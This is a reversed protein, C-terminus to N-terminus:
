SRVTRNVLEELILALFLQEEKDNLEKALFEFARYQLGKEGESQNKTLSGVERSGITVPLMKEGGKDLSAIVKGTKKGKLIGDPSITGVERGDIFLTAVGKNIGYYYE